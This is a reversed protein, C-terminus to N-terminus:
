KKISSLFELLNGLFPLTSKEFLAKCFIETASSFNWFDTSQIRDPCFYM